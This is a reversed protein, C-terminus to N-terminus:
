RVVHKKGNVIYVGKPLGDLSTTNTRLLQGSISYVNNNSGVILPEDRLLGVIETSQDQVGNIAVSFAHRAAANATGTQHEDELWARFGKIKTDKTIHYMNGGSFVYANAPVINKNVSNELNVYTGCFTVQCGEGNAYSDSNYHHGKARSAIEEALTQKNFSVRDIVYYKYITRRYYASSTTYGAEGEDKGGYDTYIIYSHDKKMVETDDPVDGSLNVLTFRLTEPSSFGTFRALRANSKFASLFQGKNVSFPLTITNWKNLTISRDFLLTRNKYEASDGHPNISTDLESLVVETGLFKLEFDDFAVFDGSQMDETFRIGIQMTVTEGEPVNVYVMVSNPYYKYFFAQGAEQLTTIEGDNGAGSASGPTEVIQKSSLHAYAYNYRSMEQREVGKERAFLEAIPQGNNDANNYFGECDLRYWGTHSITLDQYFEEGAKAGDIYACYFMGTMQDDKGETFNTTYAGTIYRYGAGSSKHWGEGSYQINSYKNQRNINQGRILFSADSPAYVNDYTNAFNALIEEESIIKWVGLENITGSSNPNTTSPYVQTNPNGWLGKDGGDTFLYGGAYMYNGNISITYAYETVTILPDNSSYGNIRKFTIGINDSRDWFFGNDRPNTSGSVYGIYNGQGSGSNEFPGNIKYMTGSKTFTLPLGVTFVTLETGWYGGANLFLDMGENYLFYRKKLDLTEINDGEGHFDSPTVKYEHQGFSTEFSLMIAALIFLVRKM